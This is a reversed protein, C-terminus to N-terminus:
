KIIIFKGSSKEGSPTTVVYFYVGSAVDQENRTVQFWATSYIQDDHEITEVLQGAYSFIRITCRPPLRYFGIRNTEEDSGVFGSSLMFPNPVVVVDMFEETAGINKQHKIINTKGSEIGNEDVSTVAYYRFEGVKFEDDTDLFEYMDDANTAGKSISGLLTWPGMGMVSRYINFHDLSGTMRDPIDFEEVDRSWNLQVEALQTNKIEYVPAPVTIPLQYVGDKPNDEPWVPIQPAEGLYAEFAKHAVQTVTVVDSNVYDPYGYQDIYGSDTWAEGTVSRVV